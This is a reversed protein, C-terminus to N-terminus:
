RGLFEGISNLPEIQDCIIKLSAVFPVALLAGITGWLWGWFLVSVLIVVPNLTLKRGLLYPTIFNGEIATLSLYTASVLAVMNMQEFTIAAALTVAGLGIISGVYPIFNLIGAMAGWLFPNPMGLLYMALSTALALGLNVSTVTVLYSSINGEIGRVIEVARRKDSFRPLVKVIKELFLDGSALFFYLLIITSVLGLIFETTWDILLGGLSDTKVEVKQAKRSESLNAMHELAQTAKGMELVSSKISQLKLEVQQLAQPARNLWLSAPTSLQVIGFTLASILILLIGGASLPAPISLKEFGRVLPGLLLNLFLAVFVPLMIAKAVYMVLLSAYLFLGTLAISRINIPGQLLQSHNGPEFSSSLSPPFDEHESESSENPQTEPM